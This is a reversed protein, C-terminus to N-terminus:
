PKQFSAKQPLLVPTSLNQGLESTESLVNISNLNQDEDAVKIDKLIKIEVRRNLSRNLDSNNPKLPRYQGYGTVVTREPSFKFKDIIVRAVHAARVSSLEWNTPFKQNEKMPVDDTHGDVLVQKVGDRMEEKISNLILEEAGQILDASGPSFLDSSKLRILITRVDSRVLSEPDVNDKVLERVRKLMKMEDSSLHTNNNEYRFEQEQFSSFAESFKEPDVKSVSYLLVFIVLVLTILDSYTVLFSGLGNSFEATVAVRSETKPRYETTELISKEELFMIKAGLEKTEELLFDMQQMLNKNENEKRGLDRTLEKIVASPPPGKRDGVADGYLYDEYKKILLNNKQIAKETVENNKWNSANQERLRTKLREIKERLLDSKEIEARLRDRERQLDQDNKESDFPKPSTQTPNKRSQISDKLVPSLFEAPEPAPEEETQINSEKEPDTIKRSADAEHNGANSSRQFSIIEEKEKIIGKLSNIQERNSAVLDSLNKITKEKDEKFKNLELSKLKYQEKLKQFYSPNQM